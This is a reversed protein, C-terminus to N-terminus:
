LQGQRPTIRISDDQVVIDLDPRKSRVFDGLEQISPYDPNRGFCRADDIIIVHGRDPAVLIHDLEECIPTEEDGKATEGASYHGDLWFLTPQDLKSMVRGLEIGSDGCIIEIHEYGKFREKAKQYLEKSLEISYLRDFVEKMAEVMDGHYTGTEVLIKLNFRKAYSQLTRQKAMHPPPVPKGDREWEVLEKVQKKKVVWNRLPYFLPTKKIIEKLLREM